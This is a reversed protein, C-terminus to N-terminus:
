GQVPLRLDVAAIEAFLRYQQDVIVGPAEHLM